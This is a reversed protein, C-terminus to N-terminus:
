KRGLLERLRKTYSAKQINQAEIAAPMLYPRAPMKVKKALFFLVWSRASGISAGARRTGWYVAVANGRDTPQITFNNPNQRKATIFETPTMRKFRAPVDWQKLWLNKARKPKITGGMEHIRGYPIGRTGIFGEPLDIGRGTQKAGGFISNLLRGSLRRKSETKGFSDRANQKALEEAKTVMDLMSLGHAKLLVNNVGKIYAALERIDRHKAM